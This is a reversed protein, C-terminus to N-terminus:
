PKFISRLRSGIPSAGPEPEAPAGAVAEPSMTLLIQQVKPDVDTIEFALKTALDGHEDLAAIARHIFYVKGALQRLPGSAQEYPVSLEGPAPGRLPVMAAEVEELRDYLVRLKQRVDEVAAHGRLEEALAGPDVGAPKGLPRTGPRQPLGPPGARLGGTGPRQPLGASPQAGARPVPAAPRPPLAPRAGPGPLAPRALPGTQAGAPPRPLGPRAPASGRGPLGPRSAPAVEAPPAEALGLAVTLAQRVPQYRSLNMEFGVFQIYLSLDDIRKRTAPPIPKLLDLSAALQAVEVSAAASLLRLEAFLLRAAKRETGPEASIRGLEAEAYDHVAQAQKVAAQLQKSAVALQQKVKEMEFEAQKLRGKLDEM